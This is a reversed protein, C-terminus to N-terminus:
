ELVLKVSQGNVQALYIGRPLGAVDLRASGQADAVTQAVVAGNQATLLVREGAQAGSVFAVESAPNPYLRLAAAQAPVAEVGTPDEFVVRITTNGNIGLQYGHEQDNVLHSGNATVEKVVVKDYNPRPVITIVTYLPLNNLDVDEAVTVTGPGVAELVVQVNIDTGEFPIYEDNVMAYPQWGKAKFAAVQARTCDNKETGDTMDYVAVWHMKEESSYDPLSAILADTQAGAIKNMEFSFDNIVPCHSLDLSSLRNRYAILQILKACDTLNLESIINNDCWLQELNKCGTLDISSIQNNNCYLRELKQCNKVSLTKLSNEPLALFRLTPHGSVDISTIGQKTAYIQDIDGEITITNSTIELTSYEGSNLTLEGEAGTLTVNTGWISIELKDGVSKNTTLTIKSRSVGAGEYLVMNNYNGNVDFSNWNKAKAAAVQEVTCVNAEGASKTDVVVFRGYVKGARSPLSEILGSMNEGSIANSYCELRALAPNHSLDLTTLDNNDCVLTELAPNGSLDLTQLANNYANLEKLTACRTVDLSTLSNAFCGLATIDGAVSVTAASLTYTVVKGQEWTGTAGTITPAKGDQTTIQLRITQGVAKKTVLTVRNGDTQAGQGAYEEKNEPAGKLNYVKWNKATAIAVDTDLCINQESKNGFDGAILEGAPAAKRDALSNILSTMGEGKLANLACNVQSLSTLASLNLTSLKNGQVSLSVLATCKELNLTTLSNQNCSLATLLPADSLDLATLSANDCVLATVDGYIAPNASELTYAVPKGNEWSGTMGTFAPAAGDKTSITLTIKSGAPLTTTLPIKHGTPTVVPEKGAYPLKAADSGNLDYAQWNKASAIAVDSKTCVNGEAPNKLDVVVVAGQTLATRSPLSNLFATMNAGDIKNGAVSVQEIQPCSSVNLATLTNNALDVKQLTTCTSLDAATLSAGNATLATLDGSIVIDQATLTYTVPVANSWTGTAGTITPAAGGNTAINLTITKGPALSTTLAVENLDEPVDPGSGEYPTDGYFSGNMDGVTWGKKKAIAVDSKLCVNEELTNQTDIVVIHGAPDLGTRNPLSRFLKTMAEGALKNQYCELSYLNPAGSCDLTTLENELVLLTNLKPADTIVLSTLKNGMVAVSELTTHGNFDVSTFSGYNAEFRKVNGKITITQATLTYYSGQDYDWTGTAGEVVPAAFDPGVTQIKLKVKSGVAASTTLTITNQDQAAAQHPVLACLLGWLVVSLGSCLLAFSSTKKM